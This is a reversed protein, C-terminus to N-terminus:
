SLRIRITASASLFKFKNYSVLVKYNEEADRVRWMVVAVVPIDRSAWSGTVIAGGSVSDLDHM